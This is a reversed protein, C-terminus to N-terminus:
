LILKRAKRIKAKEVGNNIKGEVKAKSILVVKGKNGEFTIDGTVTTNDLKIVPKEENAYKVCISKVTSNTFIADRANISVNGLESKDVELAGNISVTEPVKSDKLSAAGNVTLSQATLQDAGLAGNVKVSDKVTVKKLEAAGNIQVDKQVTVNKLEGFGDIKVRKVTKNKISNSFAFDSQVCAFSVIICCLRAINRIIM